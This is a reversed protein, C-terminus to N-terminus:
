LIPKFEYTVKDGRVTILAYTAQELTEITVDQHAFGSVEVYKVGDEM